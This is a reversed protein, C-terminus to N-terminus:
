PNNEDEKSEDPAASKLMLSAFFGDTEHQKPSLKLYKGQYNKLNIPQLTLDQHEACFRQVQEENEVDLISCTAYVMKGGPKLLRYASQLIEFQLNVIEDLDQQTFKARMDPNRRWTGTGSCPADVLVVHACEAHRKIWKGNIEQCFVNNVNARRLRVKANELRYLHKDLAFIRGKNNMSTALALTKGGAGACYDVVTDGPQPNCIEAILQSGEDQIEAMGSSLVKSGRGIRGSTIIIANESLEGDKLQVNEESLAHMVEQKTSKLTNVRITVNARLNMALMEEELVSVDDAFRKLLYPELWKPYNLRMNLPEDDRKECSGLFKIDFNSLGSGGCNNGFPPAKFIEIIDKTELECCIKLFALIIYRAFNSTINNTYSIVREYNRFVDYSFEAINKRDSSGITKNKNFFNAMIADFPKSTELFIEFMSIVCQMHRRRYKSTLLSPVNKHNQDKTKENKQM